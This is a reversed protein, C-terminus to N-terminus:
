VSQRCVPEAALDHVVARNKGSRKAQVLAADAKEYLQRWGDGRVRGAVGLSVTFHISGPRPKVLLERIREAVELAQYTDTEPMLIAFEEGGMRCLYDMGRISQEVKLALEVLVADGAPHGFCDNIVKFDDVDLLVLALPRGTRDARELEREVFEVMARRTWTNTLYDTNAENRAARVIKETALSAGALTLAPWLLLGLAMLVINSGNLFDSMSLGPGTFYPVQAVVRTALYLIQLTSLVRAVLIQYEASEEAPPRWLTAVMVAGCVAHFFSTVLVRAHVADEIYHFYGLAAVHAALAALLPMLLTSKGFHRRFGMVFFVAALGYLGNALETVLFPRSTWGIFYFPCSLVILANGILWEKLGQQKSRLLAALIGVLISSMGAASLLLVEFAKFM